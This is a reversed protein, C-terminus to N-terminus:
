QKVFRATQVTRDNQITVFYTGAPLAPLEINHQQTGAGIAQRLLLQGTANSIFVEGDTRTEKDWVINLENAVITPFVQIGGGKSDSFIVSEIKHYEDKGDKDFQHLRYYNIGPLPEYDTFAYTQQVKSNGDGYAKKEGIKGFKIGDRSREVEMYANDTESETVWRLEITSGVRKGTFDSLTIPFTGTGNQTFTGSNNFTSSGDNSIIGNNTITAGSNNTVANNNTFSASSNITITGGSNNIVSGDNTFTAPSAITITGNNTITAASTFSVNINLTAGSSIEIGSFGSTPVGNINIVNPSALPDAPKNPGMPCTGSKSWDGNANWNGGNFTYTCQAKMLFSLCVFLVLLIYNKM